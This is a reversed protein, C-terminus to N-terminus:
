VAILEQRTKDWLIAYGTYDTIGALSLTAQGTCLDSRTDEQDIAVTIAKGCKDSNFSVSDKCGKADTVVVEYMGNPLNTQSQMSRDFIDGGKWNYSFPATGTSNIIKADNGKLRILPAPKSLACPNYTFTYTATCNNADTVNVTYATGPVLNTRTAIDQNNDTWVIHYEKKGKSVNIKVGGTALEERSVELAAPDKIYIDVTKTECGQLSSMVAVTYRGGKLGTKVPNDIGSTQLEPTIWKIYSNASVSTINISGTTGGNCVPATAKYRIESLCNSVPLCKKPIEFAFDNSNGTGDTVHLTIYGLTLVSAVASVNTQKGTGIQAGNSPNIWSYTVPNAIPSSNVTGDENLRSLVAEYNCGAVLLYKV